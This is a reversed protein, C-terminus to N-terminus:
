DIKPKCVLFVKQCKININMRTRAIKQRPTPPSINEWFIRALQGSKPFLRFPTLTVCHVLMPRYINIIRDMVCSTANQCTTTGHYSSTKKKKIQAVCQISPERAGKGRGEKGKRRGREGM